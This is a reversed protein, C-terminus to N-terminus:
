SVCEYVPYLGVGLLQASHLTLIYPKNLSSREPVVAYVMYAVLRNYLRRPLTTTLTSAVPGLPQPNLVRGLRHIKLPLLIRPVGEKLHSTFGSTGHRLIKHCILCVKLYKLYQYALNESGGENRRSAGLHRQQYCQWLARTSPDPTIVLRCWWWPEGHERIVRPIFLM